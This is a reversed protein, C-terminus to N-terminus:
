TLRLRKAVEQAFKRAEEDRKIPHYTNDWVEMMSALGIGDFREIQTKGWGGLVMVAKYGRRERRAQVVALRECGDEYSACPIHM